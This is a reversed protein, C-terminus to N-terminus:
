HDLVLVGKRKLDVCKRGSWSIYSTEKRGARGQWLFDHQLRKIHKAIMALSKILLMSNVSLYSLASKILTISEGM